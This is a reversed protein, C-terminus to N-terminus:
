NWLTRLCLFVAPWISLFHTDKTRYWCLTYGGVKKSMETDM